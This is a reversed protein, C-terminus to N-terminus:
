FVCDQNELCKCGDQAVGIKSLVLIVNEIEYRQKLVSSSQLGRYGREDITRVIKWTGIGAIRRLPARLAPVNRPDNERAAVAWDIDGLTAVLEVGGALVEYVGDVSLRRGLVEMLALVM